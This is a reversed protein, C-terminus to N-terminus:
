QNGKASDIPLEQTHKEQKVQLVIRLWINM